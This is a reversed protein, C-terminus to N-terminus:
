KNEKIKVRAQLSSFWDSIKMQFTSQAYLPGDLERM